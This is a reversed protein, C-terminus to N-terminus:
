AGRHRDLAARAAGLLAADSNMILRTPVAKVFNSLRGKSEFRARFPSAALFTAIQQGIGGALYVGGQAGHALAMDGAVTGLISCFMTLTASCAPDGILARATIEAAPLVANPNRNMGQLAQHLNEIGPGSLIREVSVRGFREGLVRWVDAEPESTPSFGIHGGETAVPIVQGGARILYSVGFGTGAGVISIPAGRVGALAPGITRLAEPGLVDSALALAAFDNILQVEAFGFQRLETESITWARNTFVVSGASVPGAVAIVARAPLNPVRAQRLYESLAETFRGFQATLDGKNHIRWPTPGSTDVIAFRAHTGGVDGVLVWNPRTQPATM